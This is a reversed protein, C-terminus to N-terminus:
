QKGEPVRNGAIWVSEISRTNKINELPNDILVIFDAWKGPELTGVDELGLSSAADGTASVIIQNPTLGAKAMLELELHEFYGQFRAPPGSDTGFAIKVGADALKKLNVSAVELAKKYQQASKSNRIRNQREPDKLQELVEPDAEQLFFPDDFFDPVNEYVFTSVERTLTPCYGIGKSKLMRTFEDDVERDRVSHAIFDVGSNLLSKADDLYFLHSAVRLGKRHAYDIVALYIEPPMKKSSGLNDDVRIKIFNVDMAANRNIVAQVEEATEGTVVAGAVLLRARDLDPNNQAARLGAGEEGDGGLSNVTTVGYRAYLRLQRLINEESYHGGELGLTGGVHGHTNILGPIIFKGSVDIRQADAPIRVTEASGVAEIQGASVVLVGNAIAERGSGDIISAGVFARKGFTSQKESSCAVLLLQTAILVLLLCKLM